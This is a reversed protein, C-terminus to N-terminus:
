HEPPPGGAALYDALLDAADVRAEALRLAGSASVDLGEAAWRACADALLGEPLAGARNVIRWWAVQSGHRALVGGVYRASVGAVGALDGYTALRGPAEQAAALLVRDTPDM